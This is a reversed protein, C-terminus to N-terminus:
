ADQVALRKLFDVGAHVSIQIMNVVALIKDHRGKVVERFQGIRMGPTQELINPDLTLHPARGKQEADSLDFLGLPTSHPPSDYHRITGALEDFENVFGRSPSTGHCALDHISPM